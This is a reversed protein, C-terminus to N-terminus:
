NMMKRFDNAAEAYLDEALNYDSKLKKAIEKTEANKIKNFIEDLQDRRTQLNTVIKFDDDTMWKTM